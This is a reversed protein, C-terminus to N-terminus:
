GAPVKRGTKTNIWRGWDYRWPGGRPPKLPEEECHVSKTWAGNELEIVGWEGVLAYRGPDSTQRVTKGILERYRAAPVGVPWYLRYRKPETPHTTWDDRIVLRGAHDIITPM